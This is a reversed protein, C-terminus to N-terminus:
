FTNSIRLIACHNMRSVHTGLNSWGPFYFAGFKMGDPFTMSMNRVRTAFYQRSKKGSTRMSIMM